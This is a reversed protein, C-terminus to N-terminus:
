NTEAVTGSAVKAMRRAHASLIVSTQPLSHDIEDLAEISMRTGLATEETEFVPLEPYSFVRYKTTIKHAHTTFNEVTSFHSVIRFDVTFPGLYAM